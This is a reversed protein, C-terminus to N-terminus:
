FAQMASEGTTAIVPALVPIPAAVARAAASAPHRTASQARESHRAVLQEGEGRDLLPEWPMKESVLAM